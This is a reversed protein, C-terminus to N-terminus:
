FISGNSRLARENMCLWFCFLMWYGVILTRLADLLEIIASQSRIGKAFGRARRGPMTFPHREEVLNPRQACYSILLYMLLGSSNTRLKALANVARFSM